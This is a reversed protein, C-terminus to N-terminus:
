IAFKCINKLFRRLPHLATPTVHCTYFQSTVHKPPFVKLTAGNREIRCDFEREAREVLEFLEKSLHGKAM